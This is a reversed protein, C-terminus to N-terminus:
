HVHAVSHGPRRLAEPLPAASVPTWRDISELAPLLDRVFEIFAAASRTPTRGSYVAYVGWDIGKCLEPLVAQLKGQHLENAVVTRPVYIFGLGACAAVVLVLNTDSAATLNVPVALLGNATRFYWTTCRPSSALGLCRHSSLEIAHAPTGHEALYSPAAALVLPSTAMRRATLNSDCLKQAVRIVVDYGGAVIDVCAESMHADLVVRPYVRLFDTYLKPLLVAGLCTPVSFRLRGAPRSNLDKVALKAEEVLDYARRYRELVAEGASTLSISRPSRYVLRTGLEKELSAIRKSAQSSSLRLRKGAEKFSLTEAVRIFLLIDAVIM